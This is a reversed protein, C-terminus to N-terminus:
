TTEEPISFGFRHLNRKKEQENSSFSWQMVCLFWVHALLWLRTQSELSSHPPRPSPCPPPPSRSSHAPIEAAATAPAPAAWSWTGRPAAARRHRPARRRASSRPRRSASRTPPCCVRSWRGSGCSGRPGPSHVLQSVTWTNVTYMNTANTRCTSGKSDGSWLTRHHRTTAKSCSDQWFVSIAMKRKKPSKVTSTCLAKLFCM